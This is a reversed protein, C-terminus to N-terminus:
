FVPNVPGNSKAKVAIKCISLIRNIDNEALTRLVGASGATLLPFIIADLIWKALPSYLISQM